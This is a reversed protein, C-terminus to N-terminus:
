GLVLLITGVGSAVMLFAGDELRLRPHELTRFEGRFGRAIMALFAEEGLTRSRQFLSGMGAAVWAQEQRISNPVLTRSVKALQIEQAARLLVALYREMMGLLTVFLSPIGLARLGRFLQPPRTTAALSFAWTVCTTTRLLFRLISQPGADTLFLAPLMLFASFLPVVTWLRGLRRFPIGSGLAVGAALAFALVLTSLRTPITSIVLLGLLGVVKARPDLQQLFGNKEAIAENDLMEELLKAFGGLARHFWRPRSRQITAQAAPGMWAPLSATM